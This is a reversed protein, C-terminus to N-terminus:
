QKWWDSFPWRIFKTFRYKLWKGWSDKFSIKEVRYLGTCLSVNSFCLAENLNNNWVEEEGGAVKLESTECICICICMCICMSALVFVWFYLCLYECICICVVSFWLAENLNNNWVEEEGGAVKLKSTLQCKVKCKFLPFKYSLKVNSAQCKFSSMQRQM